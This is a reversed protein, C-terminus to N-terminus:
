GVSWSSGNAGDKVQVGASAL